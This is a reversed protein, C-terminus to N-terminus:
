FDRIKRDSFLAGSVAPPPSLALFSPTDAGEEASKPARDGALDTRCWGPCCANVQLKPYQRAYIRTLASMGIKSTGYASGPWGKEKHTGKEAELIFSSMLEDLSALTLLPSILQDKLAPNTISSLLGLASSVFVAKGGEKLLPLLAESVRKTGFYNIGLTVRAQEAFPETASGKFAIGANNVLIDIGGPYTAKIYDTFTSVSTQDSIDLQHFSLQTNNTKSNSIEQVAKLGLDPSRATLIVNSVSGSSVLIKTIFFGIGKNAGTVVALSAM